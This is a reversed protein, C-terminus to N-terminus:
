RANEMAISRYAAPWRCTLIFALWRGDPQKALVITARGPRNFATGDEHFGTSTWPTIAVAMAGGPAAMIMTNALDFRFEATRGFTTGNLLDDYAYELAELCAKMEFFKEVQQSNILLM